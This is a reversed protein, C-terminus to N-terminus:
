HLLFSFTSFFLSEYREELNVIKDKWPTLEKEFEESMRTPVFQKIKLKQLICIRTTVLEPETFFHKAKRQDKESKGRAHKKAVPQISNTQSKM